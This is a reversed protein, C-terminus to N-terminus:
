NENEEGALIKKAYGVFHLSGTIIIIENKSIKNYYNSFNHIINERFSIKNSILQSSSLDKYRFDPFSTVTITSVVENLLLLMENYDKDGLSSFLINIKINKFFTKITEILSIVGDVNHAGDLYVNEGIKEMRAPWFTNKISEKIILDYFNPNLLQYAKIALIANNKQHTGILSLEYSNNEYSIVYPFLSDIKIDNSNIWYFKANTNSIYQEVKPLFEEQITTVLTGQPKVIGLKQYLIEEKTNGLIQQHDIGINTILSLKYELVNTTDLLGGIGVEILLLEVKRELFYIISILFSLEFFSYSIMDKSMKQQFKYIKNILRLLNNDSIPINNIQIRENFKLIYPSVFMGVKTKHGVALNSLFSTTSGKGNTGAIHVKDIQKIEDLNLEEIARNLNNFRMERNNAKQTELWSIAENLNKFM